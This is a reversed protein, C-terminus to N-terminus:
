RMDKILKNRSYYWKKTHTKGLIDVQTNIAFEREYCGTKVSSKSWAPKKSLLEGKFDKKTRKDVLLSNCLNKARSGRIKTKKVNRSFRDDYFGKFINEVMMTAQSTIDQIQSSSLSDHDEANLIVENKIVRVFDKSLELKSCEKQKRCSRKCRRNSKGVSESQIPSKTSNYFKYIENENLERIIPRDSMWQFEENVAASAIYPECNIHCLHALTAVADKSQHNFNLTRLEKLYRKSHTKEPVSERDEEVDVEEFHDIDFADGYIVNQDISQHDNSDIDEEKYVADGPETKSDDLANATFISSVDFTFDNECHEIKPEDFSIDTENFPATENFMSTVDFTFDNMPMEMSESLDPEPTVEEPFYLEAINAIDDMNM